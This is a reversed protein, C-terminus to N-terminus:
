GLLVAYDCVYSGMYLCTTAVTYLWSGMVQSHAGPVVHLLIHCTCHVNVDHAGLHLSPLFAFLISVFFAYM